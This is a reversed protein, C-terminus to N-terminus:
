KPILGKQSMSKLLDQVKSSLVVSPDGVPRASIEKLQKSREEWDKRYITWKLNECELDQELEFKERAWKPRVADGELDENSLKKELEDIKNVLFERRDEVVAMLNFRIDSSTSVREKIIDLVKQTWVRSAELNHILPNQKLGDLEYIKDKKTIFAVFHFPDKSDKEDKEEDSDDGGVALIHELNGFENHIARIELSNSLCLGRMDAPLDQAFSRFNSLTEGLRIM